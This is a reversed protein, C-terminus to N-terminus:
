ALDKPQIKYKLMARLLLSIPHPVLYEGSAYYRSTRPDIKLFKAAGVQSLGLRTIADQYQKATM